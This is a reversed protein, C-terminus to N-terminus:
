LKKQRTVSFTIENWSTGKRMSMSLYSREKFLDYFASSNISFHLFSRNEIIIEGRFSMTHWEKRELKVM